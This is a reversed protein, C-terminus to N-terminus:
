KPNNFNEKERLKRNKEHKCLLFIYLIYFNHHLKINNSIPLLVFGIKFLLTSIYIGFLFFELRFHCSKKKIGFVFIPLFFMTMISTFHKM